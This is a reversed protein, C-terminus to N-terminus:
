FRCIAALRQYKGGYGVNRYVREKGAQDASDREALCRGLRLLSKRDETATEMTGEGNLCADLEKSFARGERKRSM